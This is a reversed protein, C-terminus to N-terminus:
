KLILSMKAGPRNQFPANQPNEGRVFYSRSDALRYRLYLRGFPLLNELDGELLLM